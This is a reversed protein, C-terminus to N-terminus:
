DSPTEDYAYGLREALLRVLRAAQEDAAAAERWTIPQVASVSSHTNLRQEGGSPPLREDTRCRATLNALECVSGASTLRNPWVREIAYHGDASAIAASMWHWWLRLFYRV